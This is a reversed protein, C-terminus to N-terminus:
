LEGKNHWRALRALGAAQGRRPDDLRRELWEDAATNDTLEPQDCRRIDKKHPFTYAACHCVPRRDRKHKTM